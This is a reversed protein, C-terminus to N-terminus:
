FDIEIPTVQYGHERLLAIVGYNGGLHGAGVAIFASQEKLQSKLQDAWKKNRNILLQEELEKMEGETTMAVMGSIDQKLYVRIIKKMERKINSNYFLDLQDEISISDFLAFQFEMTELGEVPIDRASALKTLEQEYIKMDDFIQNIVLGYSILPKLTSIYARKQENVGYKKLKKQFDQYKKPSLYDSLLKNDPLSMKNMVLNQDINQLDVEQIMVESQSVKESVLEPMKYDSAPILHITGFLYSTKESDPHAIEWFVSKEVPAQALSLSSFIILQLAVLFVFRKM